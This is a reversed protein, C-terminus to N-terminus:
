VRNVVRLPIPDDRLDLLKPPPRWRRSLFLGTARQMDQILDVSLHDPFGSSIYHTIRRGAGSVFILKHPCRCHPDKPRKAGCCRVHRYVDPNCPVCPAISELYYGAAQYFHVLRKVFQPYTPGGHIGCVPRNSFPKSSVFIFEDVDCSLLAKDLDPQFCLWTQAGDM